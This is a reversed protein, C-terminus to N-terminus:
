VHARGIAGLKEIRKRNKRGLAAFEPIDEIRLYMPNSFRRTVPLYPSPAMPKTPAAAHLPNILLFGAGFETASWTAVDACDRLDGLGWSNRSRTAYIQEMFGWQREGTITEPNLCAPTMALDSVEVHMGSMAHITYYGIPLDQPLTFSAEGVLMGDIQMPEVWHDMQELDTRFGDEAEVWVDVSDGHTVHVWLRRDQGQIGISFAPLMRRWDRTHASQLSAELLEDTSTEYGLSTLVAQLTDIDILVESGSQDWYQTAVGCVHALEILTPSLTQESM